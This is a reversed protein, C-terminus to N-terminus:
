AEQRLNHNVHCVALGLDLRDRLALFVRLLAVSDPGGSVGLLIRDGARILREEKIYEYVREIM